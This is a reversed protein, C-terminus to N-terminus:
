YFYVYAHLHIYLIIVNICTSKHELISNLITGRENFFYFQSRDGKFYSLDVKFIRNLVTNLIVRFMDTVLEPASSAGQLMTAVIWVWIQMKWCVTKENYKAAAREIKMSQSSNLGYSCRQKM